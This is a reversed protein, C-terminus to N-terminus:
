TKDGAGEPLQVMVTHQDAIAPQKARPQSKQQPRRAADSIRLLLAVLVYNALLSSGGYSLFPST